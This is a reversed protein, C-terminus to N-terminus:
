GNNIEGGTVFPHFLLSRKGSPWYFKHFKNAPNIDTNTMLRCSAVGMLNIQNQRQM